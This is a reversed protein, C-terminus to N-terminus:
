VKPTLNKPDEPVPSKKARKIAPEEIKVEQIDDDDDDLYIM